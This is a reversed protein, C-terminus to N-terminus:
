YGLYESFSKERVSKFFTAHFNLDSIINVHSIECFVNTFHQGFIM